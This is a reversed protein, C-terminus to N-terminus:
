VREVEVDVAGHEVGDLDTRQGEGRREEGRREEGRREEGRRERERREREERERVCLVCVPFISLGKSTQAERGPETTQRLCSTEGKQRM